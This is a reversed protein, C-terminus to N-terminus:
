LFLCVSLCVPLCVSPCVSLRVSQCLHFHASSLPPWAGPFPHVEDIYHQLIEEGTPESLFSFPVLPSDLALFEIDEHWNEVDKFIDRSQPHQKLALRVTTPTAGPVLDPLLSPLQSPLTEQFSQELAKVREQRLYNLKGRVLRRVRISGSLDRLVGLEVEKELMALAQYVSLSFSTITRDLVAQFALENRHVREELQQHADAYSLVRAKPKKSDILHALVLFCLDVNIGKVASVEIVPCQKKTHSVVDQVVAVSTEVAGDFKTCAVVTPKKTSTIGHLLREFADRQTRQESLEMSVDVCVVFGEVVFKDPFNEVDTYQDPLAFQDPEVYAVKGGSQLKLQTCRKHYPKTSPFPKHSSDEVFETHEVVQPPPATSTTM